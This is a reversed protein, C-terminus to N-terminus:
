EQKLCRSSLKHTFSLAVPCVQINAASGTLAEESSELISFNNERDTEKQGANNPSSDKPKLNKKALFKNRKTLSSIQMRFFSYTNYWHGEGYMESLEIVPM